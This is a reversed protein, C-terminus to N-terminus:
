RLIVADYFVRGAQLRQAYICGHGAGIDEPVTGTWQTPYTRGARSQTLKRYCGRRRRRQKCIAILIELSKQHTVFFEVEVEQQLCTFNGQARTRCTWVDRVLLRCGM